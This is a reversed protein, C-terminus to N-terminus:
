CHIQHFVYNFTNFGKSFSATDLNFCFLITCPRYTQNDLNHKLYRLNWIELISVFKISIDMVYDSRFKVM